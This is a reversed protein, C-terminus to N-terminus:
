EDELNSLVIKSAIGIGRWFREKSSRAQTIGHRAMILKSFSRKDVPKEMNAKCYELYKEYLLKIPVTAEPHIFCTDQLFPGIIDMEEQYERTAIAIEEPTNLGESQWILCGEVAWRLIGELEERLLERMNAVKNAGKFTADFPILIMRRWIGYDIGEIIPRHNTSLWVKWTPRFEINESYLYRATIVDDGTIQKIMTEDLKGKGSTEVASVFRSGQLRALDNRIAGGAQVMLTKPNSAKSYTGLLDRIIEIFTTKGNAGSGYMIFMVQEEVSATLTYGIAKQLFSVLSKRSCMIDDLFKLWRTCTARTDYRIPIINTAYDKVNHPRLTGTELDVVGNLVNLKMKDDPNFDTLHRVVKNDLKALSLMADIAQKSESHYAWKRAEPSNATSHLKNIVEKVVLKLVGTDKVWQKGNYSYWTGSKGMDPCYLLRDKAIDAFLQSNGLDTLNYSM